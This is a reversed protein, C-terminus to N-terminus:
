PPMHRYNRGKLALCLFLFNLIVHALYCPGTLCALLCVFGEMEVAGLRPVKTIYEIFPCNFFIICVQNQKLMRKHSLCFKFVSYIGGSIVALQVSPTHGPGAARRSNSHWQIVPVLHSVPLDFQVRETLHLFWPRYEPLFVGGGGGGGGLQLCVLCSHSVSSPAATWQHFPSWGAWRQVCKRRHNHRWM